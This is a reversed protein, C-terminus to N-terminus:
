KSEMIRKSTINVISDIVRNQTEYSLPYHQSMIGLSIAQERWFIDRTKDKSEYPHEYYVDRIGAQVLLKMCVYCPALTCYITGGSISIGHREAQAIANAEAHSSVCYRYKDAESVGSERRFCFPQGNVDEKDTCHEGGSVAGNYGTVLIQKDRVIVCGIPRSNCTSRTSVVKAISMFYDNWGPRNKM